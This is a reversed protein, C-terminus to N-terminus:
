GEKAKKSKLDGFDPMTTVLGYDTLNRSWGATLQDNLRALFFDFPDKQDADVIQLDTAQMTLKGFRLVRGQYFMYNRVRQAPLLKPVTRPTRSALTQIVQGNVVQVSRVRSKIRPPPLLMEPNLIFDDKDIEVGRGARVKVMNELEIGLMGMLRRVGIGGVRVSTPHLRLRGDPTVSLQSKITFPLNIAKDLVGTQVLQSGEVRVNLKKIDAGPYNFVYKNLLATLSSPTIAVVASDIAIDFSTPDDFWPPENARTGRLQGRLYSINLIVQDDVHFDVNRMESEVPGVGTEAARALARPLPRASFRPQAILSSASACALLLALVTKHYLKPM